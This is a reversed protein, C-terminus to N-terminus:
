PLRALKQSLNALALASMRAMQRKLVPMLLRTPGRTEFTLTRDFRTANGDAQLEYRIVLWGDGMQGRVQWLNPREALEVVYHTQRQLTWPLPALPQVAIVEVFRNGAVLPTDSPSASRSNPHWEHWRWPQTVYDYVVDPARPMHVNNRLVVPM